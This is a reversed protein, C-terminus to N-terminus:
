LIRLDIEVMKFKLQNTNGDSDAREKFMRICTKLNGNIKRRTVKKRQNTKTETKKKQSGSIYNIKGKLM